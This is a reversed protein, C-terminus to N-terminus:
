FEEKEWRPPLVPALDPRLLTSFIIRVLSSDFLYLTVGFILFSSFLPVDKRFVFLGCTVCLFPAAPPAVPPGISTANAASLSIILLISAILM